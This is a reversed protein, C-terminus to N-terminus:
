SDRLQFAAGLKKVELHLATRQEKGTKDRQRDLQAARHLM